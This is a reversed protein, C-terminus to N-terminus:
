KKVEKLKVLKRTGSKVKAKLEALTGFFKPLGGEAFVEGNVMRLPTWYVDNPSGMVHGVLEGSTIQELTVKRGHAIFRKFQKSPQLFRQYNGCNQPKRYHEKNM